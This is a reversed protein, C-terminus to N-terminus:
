DSPADSGGERRAQPSVTSLLSDLEEEERVQMSEGTLGVIFIWQDFGRGVLRVAYSRGIGAASCFVSAAEDSSFRRDTLRVQEIRIGRPLCLRAGIQTGRRADRRYLATRPSDIVMEIDMDFQRSFLRSAADFSRVQEVADTAGARGMPGTFCLAAAGSLLALLVVALMVEILTFRGRSPLPPVTM